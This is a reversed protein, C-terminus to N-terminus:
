QVWQTRHSHAVMCVVPSIFTCTTQATHRVLCGTDTPWSSRWSEAESTPTPLAVQFVGIVNAYTGYSPLSVSLISLCSIQRSLPLSSM